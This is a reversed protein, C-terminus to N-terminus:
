FVLSDAYTDECAKEQGGGGGRGERRGHCNLVCTSSMMLTTM